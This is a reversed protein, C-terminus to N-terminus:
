DEMRECKKYKEIVDDAERNGSPLEFRTDVLLLFGTQELGNATEQSLPIWSGNGDINSHNIHLLPIWASGLLNDKFLGKDWLQFCVSEDLRNTESYCFLCM